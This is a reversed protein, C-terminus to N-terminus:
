SILTDTMGDSIYDLDPNGSENVFPMVAISTIQKVSGSLYRYVSYGGLSVFLLILVAVILPRLVTPSSHVSQQTDADYILQRTTAERASYSDHLIATQSDPLGPLSSPGELLTTGDDLCYLLSDDFYDRRCEPCRKM